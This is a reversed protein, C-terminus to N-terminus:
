LKRLVSLGVIPEFRGVVGDGLPVKVAEDPLVIFPVNRLEHGAVLLVDAVAFRAAVSRGDAAVGGDFNLRRLHLRRATSASVVSNSAGTDLIADLRTGNIRVSTRPLDMSDRVVPVVEHSRVAVTMPLVTLNARAYRLDDEVEDVEDRAVTGASVLASEFAQAARVYRQNRLDLRGLERFAAFRLAGDLRDSVTLKELSGIAVADKGAFADLVALAFAKRTPDSAQDAVVQL